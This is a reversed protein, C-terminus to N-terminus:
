LLAFGQGGEEMFNIEELQWPNALGLFFNDMLHNIVDFAISIRKRWSVRPGVLM